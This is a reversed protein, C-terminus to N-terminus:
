GNRWQQRPTGHSLRQITFSCPAIYTTDRRRGLASAGM